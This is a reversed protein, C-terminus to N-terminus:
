VPWLSKQSQPRKKPSVKRSKLDVILLYFFHRLSSHFPEVAAFSEAKDRIIVSTFSKDVMRRDLTFAKLAEGFPVLDAKFRFLTRFAAPRGLHDLQLCGPFAEEGVFRSM